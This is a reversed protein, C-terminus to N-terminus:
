APVKAVQLPRQKLSRLWQRIKGAGPPLPNCADLWNALALPLLADCVPSASVSLIVLPSCMVGVTGAFVRVLALTPHVKRHNLFPEARYIEDFPRGGRFVQAIWFAAVAFILGTFLRMAGGRQWLIPIELFYCVAALINMADRLHFCDWGTLKQVRWSLREIHVLVRFDVALVFLMLRYPFKKM